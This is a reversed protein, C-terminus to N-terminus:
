LGSARGSAWGVAYVQLIIYETLIHISNHINRTTTSKKLRTLTIQPTRQSNQLLSVHGTIDPPGFYSNSKMNNAFLDFVFM